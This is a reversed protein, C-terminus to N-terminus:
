AGGEGKMLLAGKGWHSQQRPIEGEPHIAKTKDWTM